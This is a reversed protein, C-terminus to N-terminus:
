SLFQNVKPFSCVEQGSAPLYHDAAVKNDAIGPRNAGLDTTAPGKGGEDAGGEVQFASTSAGWLFDEPFPYHQNQM